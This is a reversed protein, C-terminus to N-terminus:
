LNKMLYYIIFGVAVWKILTILDPQKVFNDTKAKQLIMDEVIFVAKARTFDESTLVTKPNEGQAIATKYQEKSNRFINVIENTVDTIQNFLSLNKMDTIDGSTTDKTTIKFLVHNIFNTLDIKKGSFENYYLGTLTPFDLGNTNIGRRHLGTVMAFRLPKLRALLIDGVTCRGFGSALVTKKRKTKRKRDPTPIFYRDTNDM